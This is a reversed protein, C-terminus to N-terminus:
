IAPWRWPMMEAIRNVTHGEAIRNLVNRLWAESVSM